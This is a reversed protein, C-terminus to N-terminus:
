KHKTHALLWRALDAAAKDNQYTAPLRGNVYENYLWPDGVAFVMGKGYQVTAAIVAGHQTKLAPRAKGKLSISAVDKLFLQKATKFIPDNELYITGAAFHADNLVHNQLDSNFHLGFAAALMNFHELETNASDNAMLVLVGGAKVWNKIANVHAAEVYHPDATEKKTDPDVIIYVDSHQLAAASPAEQLTHLTAGQQRFMEGWISFGTEDTDEWLYHFPVKEGGGKPTHFEHNFYNDVTVTQAAAVGAWCCALLCIFTKKM